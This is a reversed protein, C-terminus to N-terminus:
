NKMEQMERLTTTEIRCKTHIASFLIKVLQTTSVLNNGLLQDNADADDICCSDSSMLGSGSLSVFVLVMILPLLM